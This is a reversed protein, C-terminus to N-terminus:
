GKLLTYCEGGKEDFNTKERERQEERPEKREEIYERRVERGRRNKERSIINFPSRGGKGSVEGGRWIIPSTLYSLM